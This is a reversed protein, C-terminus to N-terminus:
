RTEQVTVTFNYDEYPRIHFRDVVPATKIRPRVALWDVGQFVPDDEQRVEEDGRYPCMADVWCILRLLSIEDVSVDHHKGSSAIHILRSRYSLRSMPPPTRYGVPDLKEYGEVLLTDAIGFGPPTPTPPEYAKGWTPRGILLWYVDDFDLLGPRATFDVTKRGEGDGEHCKACYKDLVPRVYRHYSVTTDPWPPPTIDHPVRALAAAGGTVPSSRAHSEHCGLCGRYEGPMVGVFSRMTQLARHNEDLLQFHLAKGPPTKFCVSGDPEIPVTGLVRKVGESQVGSVVPGTSIYPRKYWYTYTKPDIHLVRLYKARGRLAPPAGDYVNNSFIVGDKAPERSNAVPWAVRDHLVPPVPRARLPVAHFINHAGEFILECNGDVDMAYLAFRNGRSASVLFDTESLPYPSFYATFKGPPEYRPSEVPDSPGNGCEPWAIEATIKTIGHPFDRGRDPDVIGISGAFWDHHGCGTFMIRRSGPIARADKMVDPWVSQNGWLMQVQTGDPNISWLKQARWLPKDTYEWRTYVVRGDNMVSPLYDPENNASVVYINKGHSDCRALVFASTPPMCRVYTHARTTCFLIHGDPLYIPDLDDFPGDTLQRLNEGDAGIEYLHFSKENHPKHCFLIRRGDFSVDPRWFSGHLPAKPMLQTVKGDPRLGDLVLLRAGPVAMYGLRHRTEHRWEKGDPFPMDVFAVRGFDFAPNKFMISRKVARAKIYLAPIDAAPSRVAEAIKALAALEQSCDAKPFRRALEGSRRIESEIRDRTPRGHAQQLWDRELAQRGEAATIGRTEPTTPRIFPAVPEHEHPRWQIRSAMKEMLAIWDPSFENGPGTAALADLQKEFAAVEAWQAKANDDQKAWQAETIPRYEVLMGMLRATAELHFANGKARLYAVPDANTWLRFRRCEEPFRARLRGLVARAVAANLTLSKEVLNRRFSALTEAFTNANVWLADLTKSADADARALAEVGAAYIGAVDRPALAAAYIRLDDMAGKFCEGGNASGIHAAAPGGALIAGPRETRGIEVGNLFVRLTRGDFTGACHHWAGGLVTKPDLRADCEVYGGVNLGLSLIRGNDQFSFLVRRDGDEKRFIENYTDFGSPQVWACVTIQPMPGFAPLPGCALRHRDRFSLAGDLIGITRSIGDGAGAITADARHGSVDHCIDGTVEDFTWHALLRADSAARGMQATASLVSVAVAALLLRHGGIRTSLNPRTKGAPSMRKM